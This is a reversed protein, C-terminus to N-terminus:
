LQQARASLAASSPAAGSVTNAEAVWLILQWDHHFSAALSRARSGEPGLVAVAGGLTIDSQLFQNEVVREPSAMKGADPWGRAYGLHRRRWAAACKPGHGGLECLALVM